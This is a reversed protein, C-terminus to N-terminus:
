RLREAPRIALGDVTTPRIASGDQQGPDAVAASREDIAAPVHLAAPDIGPAGPSRRPANWSIVGCAQPAPGNGAFQFSAAVLGEVEVEPEEGGPAAEAAPPFPAAIRAEPSVLSGEGTMEIAAATGAALAAPSLQFLAGDARVDFVCDRADVLFLGSSRAPPAAIRLLAASGRLTVGRAAIRLDAGAAPFALPEVLPGGNTSLCNEFEIRGPCAALRVGAQNGAFVTNRVRVRTRPASRPDLGKWAIAARPAASSGNSRVAPGAAAPPAHNVGAAADRFSCGTVALELARVVVLAEPGTGDAAARRLHVNDLSVREAWLELARDGVVIEPSEGRLGRITLAGVVSVEAAAYPGDAELLITGEADPPPLPLLGFVSPDSMERGPANGPIAAPSEAAADFGFRQSVRAAIHLLETRAGRDVLSLVGGSLVFLLALVPPWRSASFGGGAQPVSPLRTNFSTRFRALKRRGMRGPAGIRQAVERFSQPRDAPDAATFRRIAEALNAPTDPAWDRVDAIAKTQHAALKALPDGTSFPPRGALLQWLLCGLAYLDSAPDAEGGTGVLEPAVGDYRDPSYGSHVVLEPRLSPVVGADVLVAAGPDTLRVNWLRIDGHVVGREELAALGEVLQRAIATVLDPQFRGRRVLLQGLHLGPVYRSVLVLRGDAALAAHPAVASPHAFGKLRGVLATLRELDPQVTEPHAAILKLVCRENGARQRALFTAGEPGRGLRDVLLCPGQVIEDPDADLLTAQFPTLRRMQVLADIWVSDFAPLDRALRRVRRRCRRLDAPTCLGWDLLRQLLPSSSPEIM